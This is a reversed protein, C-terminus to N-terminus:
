VFKRQIYVIIQTLFLLKNLLYHYHYHLAKLSTTCIILKSHYDIIAKHKIETKENYLNAKLPVPELILTICHARLQM